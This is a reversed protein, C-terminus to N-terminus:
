TVWLDRNGYLSEVVGLTRASVEEPTIDTHQLESYAYGFNGTYRVTRATHPITPKQSAFPMLPSDM